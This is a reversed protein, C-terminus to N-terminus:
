NRCMLSSGEAESVAYLPLNVLWDEKQYDAMSTRIALKPQFKECYTKLSKAKLNTEAKVE